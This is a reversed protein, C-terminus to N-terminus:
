FIADLACCVCMAALCGMLCSENGGGQKQQQVYYQQQPQQQYYGGQQGGQSYGQQPGQNYGQQYGGYGQQHQQYGQPQQQYGQQQYGQQQYSPQLTPAYGRSSEHNEAPGSEKSGNNWHPPAGTPPNYDSM